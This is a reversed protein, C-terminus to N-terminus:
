RWAALFLGIMASVLITLCFVDVWGFRSWLPINPVEHHRCDLVLVQQMAQFECVACLWSRPEIFGQPREGIVEVRLICLNAGRRM